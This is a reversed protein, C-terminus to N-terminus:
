NLDQSGNAGTLDQEIEAVPVRYSGEAWHGLDITRCTESCFPGPRRQPDAPIEKKCIACIKV